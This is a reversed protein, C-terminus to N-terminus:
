VRAHPVESERIYEERGEGGGVNSFGKWPRRLLPTQRLPPALLYKLLRAEALGARLQVDQQGTVKPFCSNDRSAEAVRLDAM